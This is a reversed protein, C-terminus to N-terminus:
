CNYSTQENTTLININQMKSKSIQKEFKQHEQDAMM